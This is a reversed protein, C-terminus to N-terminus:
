GVVPVEGTTFELKLLCLGLQRTDNGGGEEQPSATRAIRFELMFFPSTDQSLDLKFLIKANRSDAGAFQVDYELPKGNVSVLGAEPLVDRRIVTIAAEVQVTGDFFRPMMLGSTLGQGNWRWYSGNAEEVPYWGFGLISQDLPMAYRNFSRLAVSKAADGLAAYYAQLPDRYDWDRTLVLQDRGLVASKLAFIDAQARALQKVLLKLLMQQMDGDGAAATLFPAFLDEYRQALHTMLYESETTPRQLDIWPDAATALAASTEIDQAIQTRPDETM